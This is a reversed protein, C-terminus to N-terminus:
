RGLQTFGSSIIALDKRLGYERAYIVNLKKATEEPSKLSKVRDLPNLVGPKIKPLGTQETKISKYGVWSKNGLLVSFTNKLFGFKEEIGWVIIPSLPIFVLALAFDLARKRRLNSSKNIVNLDMLFVNGGKEISNSGIIFLSEPPAIKYQINKSSNGSMLGIIRNSTVDSGSFIVTQLKYISIIEKLRDANAMEGKEDREPSIKLPKIGRFGADTLLKEIRTFESDGAVIGIKGDDLQDEVPAFQNILVRSISYFILTTASGLIILARSFRLTEPLLAYIALIFVTGFAVGRLNKYISYPKDYGGNLISSIIWILSYAGFAGLLLNTQYEIGSIDQYWDKLLFLSGFLIFFDFVYIVISLLFRQLIALGARIFIAFNIFFGFVNANRDTFHKKAFIVMARYFVFVYNVSSKKTSEGKYHIIRADHFYYNKYGGLVIRYSLDIDEGYMFFEEDLLGVKDLTAKRILMFAGSLIEVPHTEEKNLYGLHYKGFIKSKPFLASLGFIKYFAVSPTPLGRKSEPLFRGKGDIMKVGLGGAEQHLDMFKVTKSFTDEEVLTDPNLLLIYRGTSERIAQNNARSFGVNEKNAILKIEPFKQRVLAVSGDVSNNDVVFVECDLTESARRVSHLCQELFYSVNYSVIVVSLDAM